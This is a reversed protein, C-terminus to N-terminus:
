GRLSSSHPQKTRSGIFVALLEILHKYNGASRPDFLLCKVLQKDSYHPAELLAKNSPFVFDGSIIGQPPPAHNCSVPTKKKVEKRMSNEHFHVIFCSQM